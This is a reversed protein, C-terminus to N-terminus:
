RRPPPKFPASSARSSRETRSGSGHSFYSSGSVQTGARSGSGSGSRSGSCYSSGYMYSSGGSFDSASRSTRSGSGSGSGYLYSSAASSKQSGRSRRSSSVHSASASRQSSLRSSSASARSAGGSARSGSARTSGSARSSSACSSPQPRCKDQAAPTYAAAAPTGAAKTPAHVAQSPVIEAHSKMWEPADPSAPKTAMKKSSQQSGRASMQVGARLEGNDEHKTSMRKGRGDHSAGLRGWADDNGEVYAFGARHGEPGAQPRATRPRIQQDIGRREFHERQAEFPSKMFDPASRSVVTHNRLEGTEEDVLHTKKASYDGPRRERATGKMAFTPNHALNHISGTLEETTAAQQPTLKGFSHLKGPRDAEPQTGKMWDPSHASIASTNFVHGTGEEVINSRRRSDAGLGTSPKGSAAFGDDPNRVSLGKTSALVGGEELHERNTEFPSMMFGPVNPSVATNNFNRDTKEEALNNRRRVGASRDFADAMGAPL